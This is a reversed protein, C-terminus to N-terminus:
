YTKEYIKLIESSYNGESDYVPLEDTITLERGGGLVCDVLIINATGGKKPVVFRVNKPELKYKRCFYFIDVLRSPRHVMCLHGRDKLIWAAAAIFDEIDATTEQRAILRSSSSNDIGAGRPVYPPNSVVLDAFRGLEPNTNKLQSVDANILSIREDLGNIEVTRKALSIAEKQVDIGTIKSGSIKHSLVLPIIGNGCGLDVVTDADPMFSAAFDALIIADVGFRFGDDSQILKLDNFGINEISEM